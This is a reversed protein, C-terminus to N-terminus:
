CPRCAAEVINLMLLKATAVEYELQMECRTGGTDDFSFCVIDHNKTVIRTRRDRALQTIYPRRNEEDEDESSINNKDYVGNAGDSHSEYPNGSHEVHQKEEDESDETGPAAAEEEDAEEYSVVDKSQKQKNPAGDDEDEDEQGGEGGERGHDQERELTLADEATEMTDENFTERRQLEGLGKSSVGIEPQLSDNKPMKADGKRRLEKRIIKTLHPIFKHEITRAVDAVKIAYTECYEAPPFFNLRIDYIKAKQYTVGQSIKEGVTVSEVVEALTLKTIGKAFRRGDEESVEPNLHLTMSPTSIHDSATMVIERLRPIGLTVNKASHGALHFTNLTMQTSPEGISQGAVIGVAEGPDVVSKM